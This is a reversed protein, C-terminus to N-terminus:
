YSEDLRTILEGCHGRGSVRCEFSFHMWAGLIIRFWLRLLRAVASMRRLRLSWQSPCKHKFVLINTLYCVSYDVSLRLVQYMLGVSGQVFDEYGLLILFIYYM